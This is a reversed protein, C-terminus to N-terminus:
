EDDALQMIHDELDRAILRVARNVWLRVDDDAVEPSVGKIHRLNTIAATGVIQHGDWTHVETSVVIDDEKGPTVTISLGRIM